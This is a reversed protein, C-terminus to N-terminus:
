HKPALVFARPAPSSDYQSLRSWGDTALAAVYLDEAFGATDCITLDPQTLLSVVSMTPTAPNTAASVKGSATPPTLLTAGRSLRYSYTAFNDPHTATYPIAVAGSPGPSYRFVGCTDAGVGDLAPTGLSGATMRNDVHVTLIFSNGSVLGITSADATHITGDPDQTTPVFYRIGATVINVAAGTSDFLDLKLQYKGHTGEPPPPPSAPLITTPFQANALDVPPDPFAWDGEPPLAPPIEFLNPVGNVVKPGLNYVSTVLDSGVFHNYKRNIEGTLPTFAGSTGQRFSVQYYMAKNLARLSSDFEVRPLVNGGFPSDYGAGYLNSAQGVNAPTTLGSLLPSGGYIGNLQVNGLARFLVYNEPADIPPCPPCLPALASTTYLTVETGCSYNWYTYCSVPTPEYISFSFGYFSIASSFYLNPTEYCSLLVYGQFQGCRDTTLTAVLRKTIFGPFLICFIYRIAAENVTLLAQRLSALNGSAAARHAAEFEPSAVSFEQLTSVPQAVEVRGFQAFREPGPDPPGPPLPQPNLLYQSIKSLQIDTLKSLILYIREVEWVYVTAGCVPYDVAIGSSYIRKLLTGKVFCFRIWCIWIDSPIVFSAQLAKVDPGTRLFQEQAARRTLDPLAPARDTTAESAAPGVVIRVMQPSQYRPVQLTASGKADVAARGIFHGTDTFAYAVAPPPTDGKGSSQLTVTVQVPISGSTATDKPDAM